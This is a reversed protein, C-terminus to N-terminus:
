HLRWKASKEMLTRIFESERRVNYASISNIKKASYNSSKRYNVITVLNLQHYKNYIWGYMPLSLSFWFDPEILTKTQAYQAARTRFCRSISSDDSEQEMTTWDHFSANCHMVRTKVICHIHAQSSPNILPLRPMHSQMGWQDFMTGPHNGLKEGHMSFPPSSALRVTGYM